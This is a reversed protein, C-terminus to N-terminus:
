KTLQNNDVSFKQHQRKLKIDKELFQKSLSIISHMKQTSMDVYNLITFWYTILTKSEFHFMM